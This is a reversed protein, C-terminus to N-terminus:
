EDEELKELGIRYLKDDNEEPQGRGDTRNSIFYFFEDDIFVDRIRGYDTIIEKYEHTELNFELVATGRLAAVYLKNDHYAMGSPAWIRDDGSTFLPSVMDKQTQNGGEIEPWVYKQGAEIKNIEDNANNGHESAYFTGSSSWAIGQPNRHGYSYVYSDAEPNDSPISGDLEMRLIKGGLSNFDQAIQATSADGTTIYLGIELRGGYHYPGSAINDLLVDDETWINGPRETVYISNEHEDISWPVDLNEALVTLDTKPKEEEMTHNEDESPQSEEEDTTQNHDESTQSEEMDENLSCGNIILGFFLIPTLLKKM